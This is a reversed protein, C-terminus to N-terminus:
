LPSRLAKETIIASALAKRTDSGAGATGTQQSATWSTSSTQSKNSLEQPFPPAPAPSLHADCSTSSHGTRGSGQAARATGSTHNTM